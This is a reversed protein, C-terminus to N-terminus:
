KSDKVKFGISIELPNTKIMCIDEDVEAKFIQEVWSKLIDKTKNWSKLINKIENGGLTIRM